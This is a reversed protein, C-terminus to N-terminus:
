NVVVNGAPMCNIRSFVVISFGGGIKILQGNKTVNNKRKLTKLLCLLCQFNGCPLKWKEFLNM